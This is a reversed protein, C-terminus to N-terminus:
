AMGAHVRNRKALFRGKPADDVIKYDEVVLKGSVFTAIPVGKVKWGDWISNESCSKSERYDIVMEKDPDIIVIDADSGVSLTGKQPYLGFAKAVNESMIKRLTNINIRRKNVGESFMLPLSVSISDSIGCNAKWFAGGSEEMKKKKSYGEHDTGICDITGERLGQWLRDQDDKERIPPNVKAWICYEENDIFVEDESSLLLYHVCTETNINFGKGKFYATADVAEKASIHVQYLRCGVENAIYAAKCLDIVECIGPRAKSYAAMYNNYKEKFAKEQLPEFIAPDEAHIMAFAPEGLKAIETFGRYMYGTDAYNESMGFMWSGKGRYGLFFKYGNVGREFVESIENIHNENGMPITFKVNAYLKGIQAMAEKHLEVLPRDGFLTTSCVTTVGGQAAAKTETILDKRFQEANLGDVGFHAHPEIAGPFIIKGKADYVTDAEPLMDDSAVVQIVGNSVALGGQIIGNETCVQGNKIVLECKM